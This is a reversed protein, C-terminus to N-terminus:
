ISEVSLIFSGSPKNNFRLSLPFEGKEKIPKEYVIHEELIKIGLEKEIAEIIKQASIGHYLHGADNIKERITIKKGDIEKITKELLDKRLLQESEKKKKQVELSRLAERTAVVARKNNVLLSRAHGPKLDKVENKKGVGQIDELLIVRM